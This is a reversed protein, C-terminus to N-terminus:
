HRLVFEEGGLFIMVMLGKGEALIMWSMRCVIEWIKVKLVCSEVRVSVM